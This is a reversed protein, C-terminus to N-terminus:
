NFIKDKFAIILATFFQILAYVATARAKFLKLEDVEKKLSKMEDKLDSINNKAVDARLEEIAIKLNSCTEELRELENLVLKSYENWGNQKIQNQM